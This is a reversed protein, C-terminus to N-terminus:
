KVASASAINRGPGPPGEEPTWTLDIDYVGTLGDQGGGATRHIARSQARLGGDGVGTTMM